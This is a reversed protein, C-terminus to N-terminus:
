NLAIFRTVFIFRETLYEFHSLACNWQVKCILKFVWFIRSSFDYAIGWCIFVTLLMEHLHKFSLFIHSAMNQNGPLLQNNTRYVTLAFFSDLSTIRCTPGLYAVFAFLNVLNSFAYTFDLLVSNLWIIM